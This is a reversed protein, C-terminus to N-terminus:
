NQHKTEEIVKDTLKNDRGMFQDAMDKFQKEEAELEQQVLEYRQKGKLIMETLYLRADVYTEQLKRFSDHAPIFKILKSIDPENELPGPDVGDKKLRNRRLNQFAMQMYHVADEYDMQDLFFEQM